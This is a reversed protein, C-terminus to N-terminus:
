RYTLSEAPRGARHLRRGGLRQRWRRNPGSVLRLRQRRHSRRSHDAPSGAPGVQHRDCSTGAASRLNIPGDFVVVQDGVAFNADPGAALELADVIVWGTQGASSKVQYWNYGSAAVPGSVITLQTGVPLSGISSSSTGAASRLNLPGEAVVVEDGPVYVDGTGAPAVSTDDTAASDVPADTEM